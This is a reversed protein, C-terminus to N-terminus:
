LHLFYFEKVFHYPFIILIFLTNLLRVQKFINIGWYYLMNTYYFTRLSSNKLYRTGASGWDLYETTRVPQGRQTTKSDSKSNSNKM